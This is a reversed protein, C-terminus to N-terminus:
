YPTIWVNIRNLDFQKYTPIDSYAFPELWFKYPKNRRVVIRKTQTIIFRSRKDGICHSYECVHKDIMSNRIGIMLKYKKLKYYDNLAFLQHKYYFNSRYIFFDANKCKIIENYNITDIHLKICINPISDTYKYYLELLDNSTTAYILLKQRPTPKFSLFIM